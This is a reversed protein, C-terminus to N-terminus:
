RRLWARMRWRCMRSIFLGRVTENLPLKATPSRRKGASPPVLIGAHSPTLSGQGGRGSRRSGRDPRGDGRGFRGYPHGPFRPPPCGSVTQGPGGGAQSSPISGRPCTEQCASHGSSERPLSGPTLSAAPSPPNAPTGPKKPGLNTIHLTGRDDTFSEIDRAHAVHTILMLGLSIILRKGWIM